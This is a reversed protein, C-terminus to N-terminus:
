YTPQSNGNPASRFFVTFTTDICVAIRTPRYKIDVKYKGQVAEGAL